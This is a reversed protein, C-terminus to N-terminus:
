GIRTVRLISGQALRTFAANSVAQAWQLAVTGASTTFVTGEEIAVCLLTNDNRDGYTCATTFNHVGWRGTGGSSTGSLIVAQDPGVASKFGSAGSPVSWQTKFRGAASGSVLDIAAFNLRFEVRYVANADLPCSLDPDDTVTTTSARDTNVTKYRYVPTYLPTGSTSLRNLAIWNGNSSQSIVAVDGVKPAAYSTLCRCKIGDATITGDTGVVTVTATRWDAGRVTQAQEGARKARQGLAWALDRHVSHSSKTM